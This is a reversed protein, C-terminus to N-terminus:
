EQYCLFYFISALILSSNSKSLAIANVGMGCNNTFEDALLTPKGGGNVRLVTVTVGHNSTIEKRPCAMKHIELLAYLHVHKQRTSQLPSSLCSIAYPLLKSLVAELKSDDTLALRTLMRELMAEREKEAADVNTAM